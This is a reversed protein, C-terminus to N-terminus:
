AFWPITNTVRLCTRKKNFRFPLCVIGRMDMDMAEDQAILPTIRGPRVGDCKIKKLRCPHCAVPTKRLPPVVVSKFQHSSTMDMAELSLSSAAAMYSFILPCSKSAPLLLQPRDLCLERIDIKSPLAM